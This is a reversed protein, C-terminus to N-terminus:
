RKKTKMFDPDKKMSYKFVYTQGPRIRITRKFDKYGAASGRLIRYGPRVRSYTQNGIGLVAGDLTFSAYDPEVQIKLRGRKQSAAPKSDTKKVTKAATKVEPTKLDLRPTLSTFGTSAVSINKLTNPRYGEASITIDYNGSGLSAFKIFGNNDSNVTGFSSGEVIATANYIPLGSNNDFPMIVLGNGSGLGPGGLYMFVGFLIGLVALIQWLIPKGGRSKSDEKLLFEKNNLTIHDGPKFSMGGVFRIANNKLYAVGASSQVTATDNYFDNLKKALEEDTQPKSDAAIATNATDPSYKARFNQDSIAEPDSNSVLGPLPQVDPAGSNDDGANDGVSEVTYPNNNAITEDNTVSEDNEEPANNSSTIENFHDFASQTIFTEDEQEGITNDSDDSHDFSDEVSLPPEMQPENGTTDEPDPDFDGAKNFEEELMAQLQSAEEFGTDDQNEPSPNVNETKNLEHVPEESSSEQNNEELGELGTTQEFPNQFGTDTHQEESIEWDLSDKSEGELCEDEESQLNQNEDSDLAAGCKNCSRAGVFFIEAGCEPCYKM